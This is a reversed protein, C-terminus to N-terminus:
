LPYKDPVQMSYHTRNPTNPLITNTKKTNTQQQKKQQPKKPPNKQQNTPQLSVVKQLMGPYCTPYKCRKELKGKKSHKIRCPRLLEYSIEMLLYNLGKRCQCFRLVITPKWIKHSKQLCFPKTLLFWGQFIQSAQLLHQVVEASLQHTVLISAFQGSRAGFFPPPSTEM